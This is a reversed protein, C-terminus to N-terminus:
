DEPTYLKAIIMATIPNGSPPPGSTLTITQVTPVSTSQAADAAADMSKILEPADALYDRGWAVLAHHDISSHIDDETEGTLAALETVTFTARRTTTTEVYVTVTRDTM